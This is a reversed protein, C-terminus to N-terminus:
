VDAYATGRVTQSQIKLPERVKYLTFVITINKLSISQINYFHDHITLIIAQINNFM